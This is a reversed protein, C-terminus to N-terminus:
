RWGLKGIPWGSGPASSWDSLVISLPPPLSFPFPFRAVRPPLPRPAPGPLSPHPPPLARLSWTGGSTLPLFRFLIPFTSPLRSPSPSECALTPKSKAQLARGLRRPDPTSASNFYTRKPAGERGPCEKRTRSVKSYTCDASRSWGPDPSRREKQGLEMGQCHTGAKQPGLRPAQVSWLSTGKRPAASLPLSMPHFSAKSM